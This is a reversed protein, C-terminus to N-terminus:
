RRGRKAAGGRWVQKRAELNERQVGANHAWLDISYAKFPHDVGVITSPRIGYRKGISDLAEM